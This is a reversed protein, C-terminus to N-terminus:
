FARKIKGNERYFVKVYERFVPSLPSGFTVFATKTQNDYVAAYEEKGKYMMAYKIAERKNTFDMKDDSGIDNSWTCVQYRKEKYM